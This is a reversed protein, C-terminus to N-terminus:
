HHFYSAFVFSCFYSPLFQTQQLLGLGIALVGCALVLQRHLSPSPQWSQWPSWPHHGQRKGGGNSGQRRPGASALTLRSLVSCTSGEWQLLHPPSDVENGDPSPTREGTNVMKSHSSAKRSRSHLPRHTLHEVDHSPWKNAKDVLSRSDRFLQM